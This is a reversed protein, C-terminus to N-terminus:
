LAYLVVTVYDSQVADSQLCMLRPYNICVHASDAVPQFHENEKPLKTSNQMMMM